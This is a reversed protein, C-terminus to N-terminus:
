QSTQAKFEIVISFLPIDGINQVVHVIPEAFKVTNPVQLSGKNTGESNFRPDTLRASNLRVVVRQAHNHLERADSPALSEEFLCKM